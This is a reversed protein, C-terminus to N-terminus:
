GALCASLAAECAGHVGCSPCNCDWGEDELVQSFCADYEAETAGPYCTSLVAACDSQSGDRCAALTLHWCNTWDYPSAGATCACFDASCEATFTMDVDSECGERLEAHCLDLVDVPSLVAPGLPYCQAVADVCAQTINWNGNGACADSAAPWCTAHDIGICEAPLTGPGTTADTTAGSTGDADTVEGTGSDEGGTLPANTAVGDTTGEDAAGTSPGLPLNGVVKPDCAGLLICTLLARQYTPM